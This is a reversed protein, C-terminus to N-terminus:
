LTAIGSANWRITIDTGDPTVPLGTATDVFILLQSTAEVGTDQYIVVYESVAGTVTPLVVDDADIARGTITKGVLNSSTAVRAGLPIDSLFQDTIKNPTYVASDVLVCKINDVDYAIDGGWLASCGLDYIYNAM